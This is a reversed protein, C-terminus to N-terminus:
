IGGAKIRKNQVPEFPKSNCHLCPFSLLPIKDEGLGNLHVSFADPEIRERKKIYEVLQQFVSKKFFIFHKVNGGCQPWNKM